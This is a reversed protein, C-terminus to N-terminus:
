DSFISQLERVVEATQTAAFEVEQESNFLSFSFRLASKLRSDELNLAQLIHSPEPKRSHCASGASAFIGREELSHLLVESPLNPFSLNIIHVASEEPLPGNVYFEIGSNELARYFALKLSGLAAAKRPRSEGSLQAALGFGAAAAVNETGPRLEKEQGGGHLLPQLLTGKRVWLGGAGGPGHIKHASCSVLDAQWAKIDLPMRTFSQVADVHFLTSPNKAKIRPGIEELPQITGIENNVHMISVLITEKHVLEEVQKPDVFGQGDVPLYDVTFGEEAELYRICNLVSPHEVLSTILHSGRNRGRRATGKLALNNSETGGSTFLIEEERGTFFSAIRRRAEEILKEAEVGKKHLSSPNGYNKDLVTGMFDIVEPYPRTTASNDLYIEDM